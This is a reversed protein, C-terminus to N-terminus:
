NNTRPGAPMASSSRSTSRFVQFPSISRSSSISRRYQSLHGSQPSSKQISGLRMLVLLKSPLSFPNRHGFQPTITGHFFLSQLHGDHSGEDDDKGHNPRDAQDAVTLLPAIPPSLFRLASSDFCFGQPDFGSAM